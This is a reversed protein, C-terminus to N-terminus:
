FPPRRLGKGVEVHDTRLSETERIFMPLPVWQDVDIEETGDPSGDQQMARDSLVSFRAAISISLASPFSGFQQQQEKQKQQLATTPQM